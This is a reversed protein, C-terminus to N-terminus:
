IVGFFRLIVLIFAIYFMIPFIYDSLADLLLFPIFLLTIFLIIPMWLIYKILGFEKVDEKIQKKLQIIFDKM